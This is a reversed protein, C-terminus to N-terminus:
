HQIRAQRRAENYEAIHRETEPDFQHRPNKM